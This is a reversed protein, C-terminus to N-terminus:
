ISKKICNNKCYVTLYNATPQINASIVWESKASLQIGLRSIEFNFGASLEM